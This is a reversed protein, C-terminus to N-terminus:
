QNGGQANRLRIVGITFGEPHHVARGVDLNHRLRKSKIGGSSQQSAHVILHGDDAALDHNILQDFAVGDDATVAGAVQQGFALARVQFAGLVIAKHLVLGGELAVAAIVPQGYESFREDNDVEGVSVGGGAARERQIDSVGSQARQGDSRGRM